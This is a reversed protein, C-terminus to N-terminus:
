TYNCLVQRHHSPKFQKSIFQGRIGWEWGGWGEFVDMTLYSFEWWIYRYVLIFQYIINLKQFIVHWIESVSNRELSKECKGVQSKSVLEALVMTQTNSLWWYWQKSDQCISLDPIINPLCMCMFIRDHWALNELVYGSFWLLQIQICHGAELNM